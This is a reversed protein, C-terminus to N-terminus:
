VAEGAASVERTHGPEGRAGGGNLSEQGQQAGTERWLSEAPFARKMAM